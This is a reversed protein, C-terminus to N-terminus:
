SLMLHCYSRLCSQASGQGTDTDCQCCPQKWLPKAVTVGGGDRWVTHTTFPLPSCKQLARRVLQGETWHRQEEVPDPEEQGETQGGRSGAAVPGDGAEAQRQDFPDENNTYSVCVCVDSCLCVYVSPTPVVPYSVMRSVHGAIGM